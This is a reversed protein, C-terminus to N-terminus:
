RAWEETSDEDYDEVKTRKCFHCWYRYTKIHTIRTFAPGDGYQGFDKVEIRASVINREDRYGWNHGIIRCLRM